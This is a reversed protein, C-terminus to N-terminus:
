VPDVSRGDSTMHRIFFLIFGPWQNADISQIEELAKVSCTPHSFPRRTRLSTHLDDGPNEELDHLFFISIFQSFLNIQFIATVASTPM